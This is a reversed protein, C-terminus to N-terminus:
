LLFDVLSGAQGGRGTYREVFKQGLNGAIPTFGGAQRYYGRGPRLLKYKLELDFFELAHALSSGSLEMFQIDFGAFLKVCQRQFCEDAMEAFLPQKIVIDNAANVETQNFHVLATFRKPPLYRESMIQRIHPRQPFKQM